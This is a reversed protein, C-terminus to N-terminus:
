PREKKTLLEIAKKAAREWGAAERPNIQRLHDYEAGLEDDTATGLENALHDRWRAVYLARALLKPDIPNV